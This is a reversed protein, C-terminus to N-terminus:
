YARLEGEWILPGLFISIYPNLGFSSFPPAFAMMGLSGTLCCIQIATPM